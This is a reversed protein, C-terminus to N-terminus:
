LTIESKMFYYYFYVSTDDKQLHGWNKCFHFTHSSNSFLLLLSLFLASSCLHTVHGDSCDMDVPRILCMHDSYASVLCYLVM